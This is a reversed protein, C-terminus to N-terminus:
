FSWQLGLALSYVMEDHGDLGYTADADFRLSWYDNFHWFTGWGVTPGVEGDIWGSAGFTFFPDFKEYGWWHWLGKVSLAATDELWAGSAEVTLFDGVYYGLYAGAGCLNRMAGGGQPIVAVARAGTYWREYDYEVYEYDDDALAATTLFAAFAALFVRSKM